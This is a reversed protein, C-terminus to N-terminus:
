KKRGTKRSCIFWICVIIVSAASVAAGTRMQASVYELRLNHTGQQLRVCMFASNALYKETEEGDVYIHWNDDYPIPIYLIGSRDHDVSGSILMDNKGASLSSSTGMPRPPVDSAAIRFANFSISNDSLEFIIREAGSPIITRTEYAKGERLEMAYCLSRGGGDKDTFYMNVKGSTDSLLSLELYLERGGSIGAMDGSLEFGFVGDWLVDKDKILKLSEGDIIRDTIDEEYLLESTDRLYGEFADADDDRVVVANQMIINKKNYRCSLFDSESVANDYFTAFSDAFRNKYILVGDIDAFFEYIGNNQLPEQSLVYRLGLQSYQVADNVSSSFTPMFVSTTIYERNTYNILYNKLSDPMASNYTSVSPYQEAFSDTFRNFDYYAKDVRYLGPDTEHIHDLAKKTADYSVMMRSYDSSLVNGWRYISFVAEINVNFFVLVAFVMAARHSDAKKVFCLVAAIIGGALIVATICLVYAKMRLEDHVAFANILAYVSVAIGAALGTKSILKNYFINEAVIVFMIAILPMLVFLHRDNIQSFAYIVFGFGKNFCVCVCLLASLYELIKNKLSLSRKHITLIFQLFFIFVFATFFLHVTGYYNGVGQYRNAMGLINESISKQVRFIFQDGYWQKLYGFLEALISKDGSAVRGSSMITYIYPLGIVAACGFGSLINLALMSFKKLFSKLDFGDYLMFYRILAYVAGPLYIMYCLYASNMLSFFSVAILSICCGSDGRRLYMEILLLVSVAMLCYESFFYHQGWILYFGNFAFAYAALANILPKHCFLDVFLYCVAASVVSCLIRYIVLGAPIFKGGFLVGPLIISIFALPTNFNSCYNYITGGYGIDLDYFAFSGDRISNIVYAYVPVYQNITDSGGDGSYIITKGDIALKIYVLANTLLVATLLLIFGKKRDPIKEARKQLTHLIGKNERGFFFAYAGTLMAASFLLFALIFVARNKARGNFDEFIELECGSLRTGKENTLDLRIKSYDGPIVSFDATKGSTLLRKESNEETFAEEPTKAFYIQAYTFNDLDDINQKLSINEIHVPENFVVTINPDDSLAEYVGDVASFGSVAATQGDNDELLLPFSSDPVFVDAACKIFDLSNYAYFSAFLLGMGAIAAACLAFWIKKLDKM